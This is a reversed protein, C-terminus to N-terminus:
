PKITFHVELAELGEKLSAQIIKSGLYMAKLPKINFDIMVVQIGIM